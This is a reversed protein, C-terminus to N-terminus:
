WIAVCGPRVRAMKVCEKICDEPTSARRIKGLNANQGPAPRRDCHYKAYVGLSIETESTPPGTYIRKYEAAHRQATTLLLCLASIALYHLIAEM